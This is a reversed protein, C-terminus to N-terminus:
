LVQAVHCISAEGGEGERHAALQDVEQLHNAGTQEAYPGIHEQPKLLVLVNVDDELIWHDCHLMIELSENM